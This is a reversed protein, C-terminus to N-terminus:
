PARGTAYAKEMGPASYGRPPVAGKSHPALMKQDMPLNFLKRAMAFGQQLLEHSIGHGTIGVCGNAHCAQALEDAVKPRVALGSDDFFSSLDVTPIASISGMIRIGSLSIDDITTIREFGLLSSYAFHLRSPDMVKGTGGNAASRPNRGSM